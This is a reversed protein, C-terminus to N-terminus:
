NDTGPTARGPGGYYDLYEQVQSKRRGPAPENIPFKVKGSGDQMVKSM